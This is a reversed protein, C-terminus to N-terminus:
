DAAPPVQSVDPARVIRDGANLGSVVEVDIDDAIGLEVAVKTLEGSDLRLVFHSGDADRLVSYRPIRLVDDARHLVFRAHVAYGLGLASLPNRGDVQQPTVWVAVRQQEIGLTSVKTRGFPEVLRVRGEFAQGGARLRVLMGPRLRSADDSLVESRVQLSNLDGVRLLAVGAPVFAGGDHLRELVTGAFPATLAAHERDLELRAVDALAQKLRQELGERELAKRELWHDVYSPALRVVTYMTRLASLTLESERLAIQATDFTLAADDLAQQSASDTAALRQVRDLEKRARATNKGEADVRAQGSRLIAESADVAAVLEIRLTREIEAHANVKLASRAALVAARARALRAELPRTDISALPQGASVADGPQLAQARLMGNLPMVAVHTAGLTAVATEEIVAEVAGNDVSVVELDPADDCASLLAALMLVIVRKFARNNM